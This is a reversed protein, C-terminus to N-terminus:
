TQGLVEIQVTYNLEFPCFTSMLFQNIVGEGGGGGGGGGGDDKM